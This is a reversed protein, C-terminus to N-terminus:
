QSAKETHRPLRVQMLTGERLSSDLLLTGAHVDVIRKVMALGIGSGGQRKSFFLDFVRDQDATSIGAGSDAVAFGCTGEDDHISLDLRGGDPMADLANSALNLLCQKLQDLDGVVIVDRVDDPPRVVEVGLSKARQEVANAGYDLLERLSVATSIPSPWRALDLAQMVLRHLRDIEDRLVTLSSQREKPSRERALLFEVGSRLNSLPNGLEHALGAALEGFSALRERWRMREETQLQESLDRAIELLGVIRGDRESVPAYTALVPIVQDDTGVRETRQTFSRGTGVAQLIREFEQGRADPVTPLLEGLVEERRYGYLQEAGPNWSSVEGDLTTSVIAEPTNEVIRSLLQMRRDARGLEETRQDVKGRLEENLRDLGVRADELEETRRRLSANGERLADLLLRNRSHVGALNAILLLLRLDEDNLDQRVDHVYVAGVVGAATPLSVCLAMLADAGFVATNANDPGARALLAGRSTLAQEILDERVAFELEDCRYVIGDAFQGKFLVRPRNDGELAVVVGRGGSARAFSEAIRELLATLDEALSFSRLVADVVPLAVGLGGHHAPAVNVEDSDTVLRIAYDPDDESPTVLADLVRSRVVDPQEQDTFLLETSGVVVVDGLALPVEENLRVGNKFTGNTSTLDRVVFGDGEPRIEVHHLSVLLDPLRLDVDADRGVVVCESLPLLTGSRLGTMVVLNPM